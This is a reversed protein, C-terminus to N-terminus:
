KTVETYSTNEEKEVESYHLFELQKLNSIITAYGMVSILPIFLLVYTILETKPRALGTCEKLMRKVDRYIGCYGIGLVVMFIILTFITLRQMLDFFGLSNTQGLVKYLVDSPILQVVVAVALAVISILLTIAAGTSFTNICNVIPIWAIVSNGAGYVKLYKTSIAGWCYVTAAIYIAIIYKMPILRTTKYTIFVFAVLALLVALMILSDKDKKSIM